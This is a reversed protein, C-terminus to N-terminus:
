CMPHSPPNLGEVREKFLVSPAQPDPSSSRPRHRCTVTPGGAEKQIDHKRSTHLPREREAASWERTPQRRHGDPGGKVCTAGAHPLLSRAARLATPAKGTGTGQTPQTPSRPKRPRPRAECARRTPTAAPPPPPAGKLRATSARCQSSALPGVTVQLFLHLVDLRGLQLLAEPRSPDELGPRPRPHPGPVDEARARIGRPTRVHVENPRGHGPRGGAGRHRGGRLLGASPRGRQPRLRPRLQRRSPSRM